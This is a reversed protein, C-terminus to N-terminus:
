WAPDYPDADACWWAPDYPDYDGCYFNPDQAPGVSSVEVEALELTKPTESM